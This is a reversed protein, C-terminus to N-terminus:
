RGTHQCVANESLSILDNGESLKKIHSIFEVQEASKLEKLTFCYDTEGERGWLVKNSVPKKPHTDIYTLISTKQDSNTGAGRSMFSIILRYTQTKVDGATETATSSTAQKSKCSLALFFLFTASALIFVNKM